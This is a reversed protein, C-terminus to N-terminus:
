TPYLGVKSDEPEKYISKQFLLFFFTRKYSFKSSM